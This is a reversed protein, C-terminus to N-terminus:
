SRLFNPFKWFIASISPNSPSYGATWGFALNHCKKTFIAFYWSYFMGCFFRSQKIEDTQRWGKTWSQLSLATLRIQSYISSSTHHPGSIRKMQSQCLKTPVNTINYCNNWSPTTAIRFTKFQNQVYHFYHVTTLLLIM